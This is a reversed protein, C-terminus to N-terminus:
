YNGAVVGRTACRGQRLCEQYGTLNLVLLTFALQFVSYRYREIPDYLILILSLAIVILAILMYATHYSSVLYKRFRFSAVFVYVVFLTYPILVSNLKVGTNWGPRIYYLFSRFFYEALLAPSGFVEGFTVSTPAGYIDELIVKTAGYNGLHSASYAKILVDAQERMLYLLSCAVVVGFFCILRRMSKRFFALPLFGMLVLPERLLGILPLILTFLIEYVVRNTALAKFFCYMAVILVLILLNEKLVFNNYLGFEPNFAFIATVYLSLKRGLCTRALHFFVVVTAASVFVNFLYFTLHNFHLCRFMAGIMIAAVNFVDPGGSIYFWENPFSTVRFDWGRKIMTWAIILVLSFSVHLWVITGLSFVKKPLFKM